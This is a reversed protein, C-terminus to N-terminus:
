TSNLTLCYRGGKELGDWWDCSYCAAAGRREENATKGGEGMGAVRASLPGRTSVPLGVQQSSRETLLLQFSKPNGCHESVHLKHNLRIELAVRLSQEKVAPSPFAPVRGLYSSLAMGTFLWGRADPLCTSAQDRQKGGSREEDRDPRVGNTRM